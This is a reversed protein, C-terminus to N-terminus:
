RTTSYLSNSKRARSLTRRRGAQAQMVYAEGQFKNTGVQAAFAGVALTNSAGLGVSIGFYDGSPEGAISAVGSETMQGSWGGAPKSYSFVMGPGCNPGSSIACPAGAVITSNDTSIALSAGLRDDQNGNNVSAYLKATENLAGKWGTKPKAFLYVAGAAEGEMSIFAGEAGVLAITGDTSLAVANGLDDWSIGDSATLKASATQTTAWGKAPMVYVYAAGQGTNKGVNADPAGVLITNKNISVAFGFLDLAAGDSTTLKATFKSTTKWGTKGAVYVYAAGQYQNTGVTAAYAGAVITTASVSVYSGLSDGAKGDSATLEATQRNTSKWGKATIQYIYVAGQGLKTGLTVNPAGVVLLKADNRLAVSNGFADGARGNSSTLKATYASSTAWGSAPKVFIYVAGQEINIGVKKQLAGIAITNGDASVSIANGFFDGPKGDSTTLQALQVWPDVVVPYVAGADDVRLRLETGRVEMWSRLAKGTADSVSLGGYRLTERKEGDSLKLGTRDENVVAQLDGSLALAITVPEDRQSGPAEALTFGQELGLPGNVYWETVAGRRYEVRNQKAEPRVARLKRVAEGYGYGELAMGWHVSGSRVEVGSARFQASLQQRANEAQLGGDRMSVKYSDSERGLAGSIATQAAAPLSALTPTSGPERDSRSLPRRAVQAQATLSWLGVLLIAFRFQRRGRALFLLSSRESERACAASRMANMGPTVSV